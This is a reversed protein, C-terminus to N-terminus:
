VGPWRVVLLLTDEKAEWSHMENPALYVYDGENQLYIEAGDVFVAHHGKILIVLAQTISDSHAEPKSEAKNLRIWRVQFDPSEELGLLPVGKKSLGNVIYGGRADDGLETNLNGTKM